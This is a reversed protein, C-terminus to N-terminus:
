RMNETRRYANSRQQMPQRAAAALNIIGRCNHMFERSKSIRNVSQAAFERHCFISFTDILFGRHTDWNVLEQSICKLGASECLSAFLEANVSPARWSTTTYGILTRLRGPLRLYRAYDKLNSHHLFGVGESKLKTALQDVYSKIVDAEVHVLSDFSFVFDISRDNVMALSKGDNAHYSINKDAAFRQRCTEICKPSLDVVVLNDCVGKLYQTWRGMGPAIELITGTPLYHHIRPYIISYWMTKSGGPYNTAWEEEQDSWNYTSNWCDFNDAISPM